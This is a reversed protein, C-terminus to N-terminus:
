LVVRLVFLVAEGVVAPGVLLFSLMVQSIGLNGALPFERNRHMESFGLFGSLAVIGLLSLLHLRLPDEGALFLIVSLAMRLVLWLAAARRGYTVVVGAPPIGVWRHRESNGERMQSLALHNEGQTMQRVSDTFNWLASGLVAM